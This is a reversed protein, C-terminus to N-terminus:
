DNQSAGIEKVLYDVAISASNGFNYLNKERFAILNESTGNALAQQVFTVINDIEEKLVYVGIDNAITESWAHGLDAIEYEDKKGIPTELTVVPKQYLIAFDLRVGSMDSIMVDAKALSESGDVEFDWSINPIGQLEAQWDNLLHQETKLTQPHPRIIINFNEAVLKKIFDVGYLALCNKTGWSPAVLITKRNKNVDKVQLVSPDVKKALEDIYPLGVPVLTKEKLGRIEELKKIPSIQFEGSLFVTDYFDLAHRHYTGDDDLAHYIHIMNKVLPSKKVPYEENGINPSTSLLIEANLKNLRSYALNGSGIYRNDVLENDIHLCPDHFDMTYYTFHIQRNILEEVIPKWTGWYSKGESMIVISKKQNPKEIAHKKGILKYYLSQLAFLVAGVLSICIAILANGTGPDLYAMAKTETAFLIYCINLILFLVTTVM